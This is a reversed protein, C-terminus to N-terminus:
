YIFLQIYILLGEVREPQCTELPTTMNLKDFCQRFKNQLQNKKFQLHINM